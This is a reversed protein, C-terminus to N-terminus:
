LRGVFVDVMEWREGADRVLRADTADSRALGINPAIALEPTAPEHVSM